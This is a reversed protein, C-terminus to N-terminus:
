VNFHMGHGNFGGNELLIMYAQIFTTILHIGFIDCIRNGIDLGYEKDRVAYIHIPNAEIALADIDFAHLFIDIVM